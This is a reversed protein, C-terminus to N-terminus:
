AANQGYTEEQWVEFAFSRTIRYGRAALLHRRPRFHGYIFAHALLFRQPTTM